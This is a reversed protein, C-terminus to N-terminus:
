EPRNLSGVGAAGDPSVDSDGGLVAGNVAGNVGGTVFMGGGVCTMPAPGSTGTFRAFGVGGFEAVESEVISEAFDPKDGSVDSRGSSDFCLLDTAVSDAASVGIRGAVIERSLTVEGSLAVEDSFAFGCLEVFSFALVTATFFDGAFGFGTSFGVSCIAGATLKENGCGTIGNSDISRRQNM